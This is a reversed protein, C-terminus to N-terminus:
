SEVRAEAVDRFWAIRSIRDGTRDVVLAGDNPLPADFRKMRMPGHWVVLRRNEDGEVREQTTTVDTLEFTDSLSGLAELVAERGERTGSEMAYPPNVYIADETLLPRLADMDGSGLATLFTDLLETHSRM